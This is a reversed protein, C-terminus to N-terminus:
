EEGATWRVWRRRQGGGSLTQAGAATVYLCLTRTKQLFFVFGVLMFFYFRARFLKNGGLAVPWRGPRPAAAIAEDTVDVVSGSIDIGNLLLATRRIRRITGAGPVVTEMKVAAALSVAM